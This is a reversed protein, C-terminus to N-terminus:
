LMLEFFMILLFPYKAAEFLNFEVEEEGVKLTLRGNKVDIVAGAIALFPQGLIIPIETDEEMELVIFDVPIIFKKVKILVNKLIGLPYKM